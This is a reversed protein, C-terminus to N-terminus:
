SEKNVKHIYLKFSIDKSQSEFYILPFNFSSLNIVDESLKFSFFICSNNLSFENLDFTIKNNFGNFIFYNDETKIINPCDKENNFLKHLLELCFNQSYFDKIILPKRNKYNVLNIFSQKNQHILLEFFNFEHTNSNFINSFCSIMEDRYKKYIDINKNEQFIDLIILILKKILGNKVMIEHNFNQKLENSNLVKLMYCLMLLTDNNNTEQEKLLLTLFYGFYKEILIRLFFMNKLRLFKDDNNNRQNIFIIIADFFLLIKNLEIKKESYIKLLILIIQILIHHSQNIEQIDFISSDLKESKQIILNISIEIKSLLFIQLHLLIKFISENNLFNISNIRLKKIINLINNNEQFIDGIDFSILKPLNSFFLFEGFSEEERGLKILDTEYEILKLNSISDLTQKILKKYKSYEEIPFKLFKSEKM